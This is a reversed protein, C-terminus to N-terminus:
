DMLIHKFKKFYNLIMRISLSNNPHNKKIIKALLPQINTYFELLGFHKRGSKNRYKDFNLNKNNLDSDWKKKLKKLNQFEPHNDELKHILSELATISTTIVSAGMHIKNTRYLSRALHFLEQHPFVPKKKRNQLIKDFEKIKGNNTLYTIDPICKFYTIDQIIPIFPYYKKNIIIHSNFICKSFKYISIPRVEHQYMMNINNSPFYLSYYTLFENVDQFFQNQTKYIYSNFIAKEILQEITINKNILLKVPYRKFLVSKM